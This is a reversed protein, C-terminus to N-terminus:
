YFQWDECDRCSTETRCFGKAENDNLVYSLMYGMTHTAISQFPSGKFTCVIGSHCKSDMAYGAIYCMSSFGNCKGTFIPDSSAGIHVIREFDDCFPLGIRGAYLRDGPSCFSVAYTDKFTAALM